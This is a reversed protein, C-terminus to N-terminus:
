IESFKMSFQQQFIGCNARKQVFGADFDRLKAPLIQCRKDRMKDKQGTAPINLNGSPMRFILRHFVITGSKM